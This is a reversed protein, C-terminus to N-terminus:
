LEWGSRLNCLAATRSHRAAVAAACQSDSCSQTTALGQGRGRDSAALARVESWTAAVYGTWPRLAPPPGVPKRDYGICGCHCGTGVEANCLGADSALEEAFHLKPSDDTGSPLPSARNSLLTIAPMTLKKAEDPKTGLPSVPCAGRAFERTPNTGAYSLLYKRRSRLRCLQM